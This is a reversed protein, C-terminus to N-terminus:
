SQDGEEYHGEARSVIAQNFQELKQKFSEIVDGGGRERWYLGSGVPSLEVAVVDAPLDELLQALQSQYRGTQVESEDRLYLEYDPRLKRDIQPFPLRYMVGKEAPERRVKARNVQPLDCVKIHFGASMAMDRLNVLRKDKASPMIWFIPGLVISVIIIIIIYTM